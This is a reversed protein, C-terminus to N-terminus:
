SGVSKNYKCDIYFKKTFLNRSTQYVCKYCKYHLVFCYNQSKFCNTLHNTFAVLIGFIPSYWIGVKIYTLLLTFFVMLLAFIHKFCPFINQDFSDSLYLARTMLNFFMTIYKAAKPELEVCVEWVKFLLYLDLFYNTHIMLRLLSLDTSNSRYKKQLTQLCM